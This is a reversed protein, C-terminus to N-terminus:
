HIRYSYLPTEDNLIEKRLKNYYSVGIEIHTNNLLQIYKNPMDINKIYDANIATNRNCQIFNAKGTEKIFKKISIYPIQLVDNQMHINLIHNNTSVYIVDCIKIAFLIGDKRMYITQKPNIRTNYKLATEVLEIAESMSFPKELYGFCHIKRYAYLEPDYLKSIFIIPTFLYQEYNRIQEALKIGSTDGPTKTSVIIDLIFVDIYHLFTIRCAQEYTQAKHIYIKGTIQSIAQELATLTRENDELILINKM